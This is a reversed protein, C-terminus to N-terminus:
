ILLKLCIARIRKMIYMINVIWYVYYKSDVPNEQIITGDAKEYLPNGNAMNVGRYQYGWLANVSEGERLITHEYPIEEVLTMVKSKQTSFNFSSRWTFDANQIINGGLELEIGDNKIRGYNQAIVNWPVGLSPPTPVDLVIDNNDKKWYAFVLNFRGHLFAMDFGVDTIKTNGM